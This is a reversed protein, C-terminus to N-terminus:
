LRGKQRRAIMAEAFRRGIDQSYDTPTAGPPMEPISDLHKKLFDYLSQGGAPMPKKLLPLQSQILRVALSEPTTGRRIAENELAHQLQPSLEISM